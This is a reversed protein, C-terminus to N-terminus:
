FGDPRFGRIFADGRVDGGFPGLEGGFGALIHSLPSLATDVPYESPGTFRFTDSSIYTPAYEGAVVYPPDDYDSELPLFEVKTDETSHTPASTPSSSSATTITPSATTSPSLSTTTSSSIASTAPYGPQSSASSLNDSSSSNGNSFSVSTSVSVSTSFHPELTDNQKSTDHSESPELIYDISDSLFDDRFLPSSSNYFTRDHEDVTQEDQLHVIDVPPIIRKSASLLTLQRNIDLAPPLTGQARFESADIYRPRSLADLIHQTPSPRASPRPPAKFEPMAEAFIDNESPDARDLLELVTNIDRTSSASSNVVRGSTLSLVAAVSVMLLSIRIM